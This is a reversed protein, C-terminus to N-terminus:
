KGAEIGTAKDTFKLVIEKKRPHLETTFYVAQGRGFGIWDMEALRLNVFARGAAWVLKRLKKM